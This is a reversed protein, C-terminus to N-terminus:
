KSVLCLERAYIHPPKAVQCTDKHWRTASTTGTICQAITHDEM